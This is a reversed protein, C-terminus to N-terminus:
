KGADWEDYRKRVDEPLCDRCMVPSDPAASVDIPEYDFVNKCYPCRFHGEPVDNQALEWEHILRDQRAEMLEIPDPIMM